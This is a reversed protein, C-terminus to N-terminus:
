IRAGPRGATCASSGTACLRGMESNSRGQQGPAGTHYGGPDRLHTFREADTPGLVRAHKEFGRRSDFFILTAHLADPQVKTSHHLTTPITYTVDPTHITFDTAIALVLSQTREVVSYTQVTRYTKDPNKGDSWALSYEAHTALDAGNTSEVAYSRYKAEGALVWSQASSQHCHIALDPNGRQGDPRFLADIHGNKLLSCLPVAISGQATRFASSLLQALLPSTWAGYILRWVKALIKM